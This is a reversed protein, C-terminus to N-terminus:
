FSNWSLSSIKVLTDFLYMSTELVGYSQLVCPLSKKSEPPKSNWLTYSLDKIKDALVKDAILTIVGSQTLLVMINIYVEIM